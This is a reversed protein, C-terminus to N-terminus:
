CRHPCVWIGWCGGGHLKWHGSVDKEIAATHLGCAPRRAWRGRAVSRRTGGVAPPAALPRGTRTLAHARCHTRTRPPDTPAPPATKRPSDAALRLQRTSPGGPQHPWRGRSSGRGGTSVLCRRSKGGAAWVKSGTPALRPPIEEHSCSAGSHARGERTSYACVTCVDALDSLLKLRRHRHQARVRSGARGGLQERLHQAVDHQARRLWLEPATQMMCCGAGRSATDADASCSTGICLWRSEHTHQKVLLNHQKRGQPWRVVM